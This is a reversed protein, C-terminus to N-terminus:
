IGHGYGSRRDPWDGDLDADAAAPDRPLFDTAPGTRGTSVLNEDAVVAV